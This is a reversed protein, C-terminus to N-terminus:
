DDKNDALDVDKKCEGSLKVAKRIEKVDEKMKDSAESESFINFGNVIRM